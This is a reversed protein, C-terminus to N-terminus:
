RIKWPRPKGALTETGTVQLTRFTYSANLSNTTINWQVNNVENTVIFYKKTSPESTLIIPDSTDDWPHEWDSVDWGETNITTDEVSFNKSKLVRYGKNREYGLLDVVILSQPNSLEIEAEELVIFSFRNKTVPLLATSLFTRFPVGYDGKINDSIESLQSDGPRIALLRREDNTDTYRLFKKFGITFATPLWAKRETDYIATNNNTDSNYPVSFYVRADFYISAIGSEGSKSIQKVTPRINGSAEDTSLLNLYQARSGLNYVAQSNEFMFDNLVNVVSGPAGTGRSGPLKYTNPVTISIDQITLVDLSMQLICGQGDASDCWITALPTGKGDRYDEVHVPTYKGGEQWDLYGGDYAGSFSGLPQTGSSFWIRYRNESDRVGYMRSGVNTLEAVKPGDTTNGTPAVTSPVIIATGNDVYTTNFTSDLYYYNIDDESIYIDARTQGTQFAPLTLTVLNSDDWSDRTVSVQIDDKLSAESFGIENVAAIKYYYTFNTAGLGTKAASPAAPQDLTTYTLITTTGDYRSIEDVGSTLYLFANYQNMNVPNGATYTAGTCQTWTQANDTSRHYYGGAAAVLHMAGASDFYDVGDIEEENTYVVQVQVFDINRAGANTNGARLLIGWSTLNIEAPTLTTSFLNTGDGFTLTTDTTQNLNQSALRTGSLTTGDKTMGIEISRNAATADTGNGEVTVIVGLITATSPINLGFNTIKLNDQATDAYVGRNDDSILVNSPSTWNTGSATSASELAGTVTTVIASGYWDVGPRPTPQGDEVLFLNDMKEAANRPLNSKNTITIVGRKMNEITIFTEKPETTPLNLETNIPM